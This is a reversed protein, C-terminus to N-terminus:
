VSDMYESLRLPDRSIKPVPGQPVMGFADEHQNYLSM